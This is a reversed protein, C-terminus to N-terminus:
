SMAQQHLPFPNRPQTLDGYIIKEPGGHENIYAAKMGCSHRCVFHFTLPTPVAQGWLFNADRIHPCATGVGDHGSAHSKSRYVQTCEFERIEGCRKAKCDGM